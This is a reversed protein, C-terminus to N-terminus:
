RMVESVSEQSTKDRTINRQHSSIFADVSRTRTSLASSGGKSETKPRPKSRFRFFEFHKRDSFPELSKFRLKLLFAFSLELLISRNRSLTSHHFSQNFSVFQITKALFPKMALLDYSSELLIPTSKTAKQPNKKPNQQSNSFRFRFVPLVQKNEHVYLVVSM